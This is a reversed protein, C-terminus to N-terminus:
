RMLDIGDIFHLLVFGGLIEELIALIMLDSLILQMSVIYLYLVFAFNEKPNLNM